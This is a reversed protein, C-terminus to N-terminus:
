GLVWENIKREEFNFNVGVKFLTKGSGTWPTLYEKSDIQELAQQATGDLKFEFCYVFKPTEVISDIRGTAISVESRCKLGLMNFIIHFITQFYKENRIALNNPIEAMFPIIGQEIASKVDGSYLHTILNVQLSNKLANSTKLYKVALEDSFAARVETNPYDLTYMDMDSDYDVITMYGSQYLMPVAEINESDYKRFALATVKKNKFTLIDTNEKDLLKILYGSTGSEFWYPIFDGQDFHKLLGFPNYVSMKSKSFRYGDYYNKLRELYNEKGNYQEAYQDIYEAFNLEMEEQTIGCIDCFRPDLTIDILNNLASFVSVHAFKTIGTLFAFRINSESAKIIKYFDRLIDRVKEFEDKKDIVSLLPNDYEDIIVVAQNKFKDASYRILSKLKDSYTKGNLAVGIKESNEILLRDIASRCGSEGESFSGASMDLRIVPYSEWNWNTNAIALGDFLEKKGSFIADLTWCLLTKGFRRPRSLFVQTGGKTIMEYIRQTKDVYLLNEKRINEFVQRGIPLLKM